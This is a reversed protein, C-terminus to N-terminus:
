DSDSCQDDSDGDTEWAEEDDSESTESEEQNNQENEYEYDDVGMHDRWYTTFFEEDEYQFKYWEGDRFYHAFFPLNELVESSGNIEAYAEGVQMVKSYDEFTSVPSGYSNDTLLEITKFIINKNLNYSDSVGNLFEIHHHNFRNIAISYPISM